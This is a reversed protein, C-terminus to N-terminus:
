GRARSRTTEVVNRIVEIRDAKTSPASIVLFVVDQDSRNMFKHEVGAAVEIGPVLQFETSAEKRKWFLGAQFCMFSSARKIIITVCRKLAPRFEKKL